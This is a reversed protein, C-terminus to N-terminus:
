KIEQLVIETKYEDPKFEIYTILYKISNIRAYDGLKINKIGFLEKTYKKSGRGYKMDYYAIYIRLRQTDNEYTKLKLGSFDLRSFTLDSYVENELTIENGEINGYRNYVKIKIPNEAPDATTRDYDLYFYADYLMTIEKLMTGLTM